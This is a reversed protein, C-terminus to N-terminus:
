AIRRINKIKIERHLQSLRARRIGLMRRSKLKDNILAPIQSESKAVVLCIEPYWRGQQGYIPKGSIEKVIRNKFTVEFLHL